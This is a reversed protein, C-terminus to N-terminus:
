RADRTGFGSGDVPGLLRGLHRVSTGGFIQEFCPAATIGSCTVGHGLTEGIPVVRNSRRTKAFRTTTAWTVGRTTAKTLANNLDGLRAGQGETQARASGECQALLREGRAGAASVKCGSLKSAGIEQAAQEMGQLQSRGREDLVYMVGLLVVAGILVMSLPDGGRTKEESM